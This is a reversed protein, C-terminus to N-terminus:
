NIGYQRIEASSINGSSMIFRIGDIVEATEYAGGIRGSYYVPTDTIFTYGGWFLTFLSSDDHGTIMLHGSFFEGAASGIGRDGGTFRFESAGTSANVDDGGGDATGKGAYAYASAGTQWNSGGDNTVHVDLHTGDTAPILKDIVWLYRFYDSTLNTYEASAAASVSRTDLLEGVAAGNLQATPLEGVSM